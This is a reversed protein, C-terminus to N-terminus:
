PAVGEFDYKSPQECPPRWASIKACRNGASKSPMRAPAGAIIGNFDDPYRQALMLAERGGTSCGDYYSFSAPRGYYATMVARAEPLHNLWKKLLTGKEGNRLRRNLEERVERPLRAIKGVRTM